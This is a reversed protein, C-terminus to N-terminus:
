GAVQSGFPDHDRGGVTIMPLAKRHGAGKGKERVDAPSISAPLPFLSLLYASELDAPPIQTQWEMGLGAKGAGM